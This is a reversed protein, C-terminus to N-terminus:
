TWTANPKKLGRRPTQRIPDGEYWGLYGVCIAPISHKYSGYFEGLWPHDRLRAPMTVVEKIEDPTYGKNMYRLPKTMSLSFPTEITRPYAESIKDAGEVPHGHHPILIDANFERLRDVGQGLDYSEEFRTGRM